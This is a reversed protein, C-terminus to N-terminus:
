DAQSNRSLFDSQHADLMRFFKGRFLIRDLYQLSFACYLLMLGFVPVHFRGIGYFPISYLSCIILVISFIYYDYVSIGFRKIKLIIGAIIMLLSLWYVALYVGHKWLGHLPWLDADFLKSVLLGKTYVMQRTYIDFSGPMVWLKAFKLPIAEIQAVVDTKWADKAMMKFLSDKKICECQVCKTDIAKFESRKNAPLYYENGEAVHWSADGNLNNGGYIVNGGGFSFPNFVEYTRYNRYGNWLLAAAFFAASTFFLKARKMRLLVFFFLLVIALYEFRTITLLIVVTIFLVQSSKRRLGNLLLGTALLLMSGCLSETLTYANYQFIDPCFLVAAFAAVSLPYSLMEKKYLYSILYYVSACYIATQVIAVLYINNQTLPKIVALFLPYGPPSYCNDLSSTDTFNFSAFQNAVSIYRAADYMQTYHYM